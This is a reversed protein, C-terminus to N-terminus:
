SCTLRGRPLPLTCNRTTGDQTITVTATTTGDFTIVERRTSTQAAAGTYTLTVRMSRVISGATPYPQGSAPIPISVGTATDGAVRVITVRGVSDTGVTTETGASAGNVLRTTGRLGSVTRDSSNNVTTTDNDLRPPRPRGDNAPGPGYGHRFGHGFGRHFGGAVTGTISSRTNIRDTTASDFAQQVAGATNAFAFSRTITLGNRVVAACELRNSTASFACNTNDIPRHGFGLGFGEGVFAGAMGGGMMWSGGGRRGGQGFGGTVFGTLGGDSGDSFTSQAEGYGALALAFDDASLASQPNTGFDLCAATSLALAAVMATKLTRTM